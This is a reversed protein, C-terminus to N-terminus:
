WTGGRGELLAEGPVEISMQGESKGFCVVFEKVEKVCRFTQAFVGYELNALSHPTRTCRVDSERSQM